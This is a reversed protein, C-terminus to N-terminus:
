SSKKAQARAMLHLHVIGVAAFAVAVYRHMCALIEQWHTGALPLMSLIVSLILPLSLFAILWFTIKQLVGGSCSTDKCDEIRVLTVREILRKAWPWDCACFRCKGAWMVVAIALFLAFVAAFTAHIMMLYGSIHENHVLPRYFGTIILVVFCFLTVLFVLKRIAGTLSLKQDLFLMTFLQVLKKLPNKWCRRCPWIMCSLAIGGFTAIFVAITITRYM